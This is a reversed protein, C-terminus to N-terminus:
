QKEVEVECPLGNMRACSYAQQTCSGQKQLNVVPPCTASHLIVIFHLLHLYTYTNTAWDHGVRQLGMSQLRGPGKTWSIEWALIGSHTAMEKELPDEWGLSRVQTEQVAPLNKVLQVVLYPCICFTIPVCHSPYNVKNPVIPFFIVPSTAKGSLKLFNNFYLQNVTTTNTEPICCLSETIYICVCRNKGSKTGDYTIVLYQSYNGTSYM